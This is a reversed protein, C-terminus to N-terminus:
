TVTIQCDDYSSLAGDTATLRLTYTGLASGRISTMATTQSGFLVGWTVTGPGNIVSWQCTLVSNPLGDDAVYGGLKIVTGTGGTVTFSPGAYVMPPKNTQVVSPAAGPIDAALVAGRHDSDSGTLLCPSGTGPAYVWRYYALMQQVTWLGSLIDADAFPFGSDETMAAVGVAGVVGNYGSGIPLPGKFVPDVGQHNLTGLDHGGWGTDGIAHTDAKIAYAVQRAADAAFYFDNYDLYDACDPESGEGPYTADAMGIASTTDVGGNNLTTLQYFVCNKIAAFRSGALSNLWAGTKIAHGRCDVTNHDFTVNDIGAFCGFAADGCPQRGETTYRDLGPYLGVCINQSATGTGQRIFNHPNLEILVNKQLTGDIGSALWHATHLINHEATSGAALAHINYNQSTMTREAHTDLNMHTYNYSLYAGTGQIKFGVREGICLNGDRDKESSTAGVAAGITWNPSAVDIWSKFIRNGKFQKATVSTGQEILFARSGPGDDPPTPVDNDAAYTNYNFIVSATGGCYLNFGGGRQFTCHQLDVSAAGGLYFYSGASGGILDYTADGLDFVDCYAFTVHGTFSADPCKIRFGNGIVLGRATATGVFDITDSGTLSLDASFVYVGNTLAYASM